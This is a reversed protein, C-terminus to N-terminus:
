YHNLHLWCLPAYGDLSTQTPESTSSFMMYVLRGIRSGLSPPQDLDLTRAVADRGLATNLEVVKQGM